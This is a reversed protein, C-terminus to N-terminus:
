VFFNLHKGMAVLLMMKLDSSDIKFNTMMQSVEVFTVIHSRFRLEDRGDRHRAARSVWFM